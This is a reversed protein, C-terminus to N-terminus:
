QLFYENPIILLKIASFHTQDPKEIDAKVVAHVSDGEKLKSFGISVTKLTKIDLLNRKSSKEIDLIYNTKDITVMKITFDEANVETIKGSMVIYQTDTYVENATVTEGIEPGTVFIYDGKEVNDKSSDKVKTGVIDYYSTLTDDVDVDIKNNEANLITIVNNKIEQIIGSVAQKKREKLEEVKEAVKDKLEQVQSDLVESVEKTPSQSYAPTQTVAFLLSLVFIISLYKKM